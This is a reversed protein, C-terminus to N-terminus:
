RGAQWLRSLLQKLEALAPELAHNELIQTALREFHPQRQLLLKVLAGEDSLAGIKLREPTGSLRRWLEGPPVDLLIKPVPSRELLARSPAWDVVGGGLAVVTPQAPARRLEADTEELLACESRRFAELSHSQVWNVISTGQRAEWVQDLDLFRAGLETAARAGLTTKGAGRFGLLYVANM